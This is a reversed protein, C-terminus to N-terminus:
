PHLKSSQPAYNGTAHAQWSFDSHNSWDSNYFNSEFGPSSFNTNMHEHSFNFFQGWHPSDGLSHYPNSCHSFPEHPNFNQPYNTPNPTRCSPSSYFNNFAESLSNLMCFKGCSVIVMRKFFYFLCFCCFFFSINVFILLLLSFYLLCAIFM